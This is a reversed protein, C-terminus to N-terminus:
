TLLCRAGLFSEKDFRNMTNTFYFSSKKSPYDFITKELDFALKEVPSPNYIRNSCLVGNYSLESRLLGYYGQVQQELSFSYREFLKKFEYYKSIHITILPKDDNFFEFSKELLSSGIGLRQYMPAVRLSCIKKENEDQKLIMVGLIEDCKKCLVIERNEKLLGDITYLSRYWKKFNPYEFNLIFLFSYIKRSLDIQSPSDLKKMEYYEFHNNM